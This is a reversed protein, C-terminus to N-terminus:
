AFARAMDILRKIGLMWTSYQENATHLDLQIQAAVDFQRQMLAVMLPISIRPLIGQALRVLESIIPAPADDNNLLDFLINLRKDVDTVIRKQQPAQVYDIKPIRSPYYRLLNNSGKWKAPSFTM